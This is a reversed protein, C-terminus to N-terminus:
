ISVFYNNKTQSKEHYAAASQIFFQRILVLSKSTYVQLLKPKSIKMAFKTYNMCLYSNINCLHLTRILM